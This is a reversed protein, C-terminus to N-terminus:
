KSILNTKASIESIIKNARRVTSHLQSIITNM